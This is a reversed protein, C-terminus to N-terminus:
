MTYATSSFCCPELLVVATGNLSLPRVMVVLRTSARSRRRTISVRSPRTIPASLRRVCILSDTNVPRAACISSYEM